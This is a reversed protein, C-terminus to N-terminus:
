DFIHNSYVFPFFFQYVFIPICFAVPFMSFITIESKSGSTVLKWMFFLVNEEM